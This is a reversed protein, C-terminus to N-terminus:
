ALGWIESGLLILTPSTSLKGLPEAPVSFVLGSGLLGTALLGTVGIEVSLVCGKGLL